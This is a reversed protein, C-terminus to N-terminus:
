GRKAAEAMAKAKKVDEPRTSMIYYLQTNTPFRDVFPVIGKGNYILGHGPDANTIYTMQVASINLMQALQLKDAQAQNLMVIFDCNSIITCAERSLLFDSVNQTLLCPLGQWKRARKIIQNIYSASSPSQILLHAEDVYFQTYIGKGKNTITQNQIANLCVKLGLEKMSDGMDKIDYVIFRNNTNVNTHHAFNDLTGICFREACLALSQAEYEPQNTLLEYLDRLTPAKSTDCTINPNQSMVQNMHEIYKTYVANVCRDLISLQNSSLVTGRGAMAEFLGAIYDVKMAIPNVNANDDDKGYNMDMDLPNLYVDGGTKIKIVTGGLHEALQTYEREPDIVYVHDETNLLVNVMERKASFSKGSGPTGFICSNMNKSNKRNWLILNRSVANLGYYMGNRQSLEQSSFPIFIAASETTLLRDTYIDCRGIPLSTAFGREQQWKLVGIECIYKAMVSKLMEYNQEIEEESNAFLTIAFTTLILSQNRQSLDNMLGEAENQARKLEPSILSPDYGAKIANKQADIVNSNINLLQRKILGQAKDARLKNYHISLLMEANIDTVEPLIAASIYTPLSKIYITQAYKSDGILTYNSKFSIVSPGIIDKTTLKQEEMQKFDFKKVHKGDIEINRLLADSEDEAYIQHLVELREEGTMPVTDQHNIRKVALNIDSDVKALKIYAEEINKAKITVTLFKDKLINNRGEKMKDLLMNNYEERYINLNDMKYELLVNKASMEATTKRNYITLELRVDSDFINLLESFKEFIQTQEENNATRFNMDEFRYSKSYVGPELEMIGNPSISMYPISEQVTKNIKLSPGKDKKDKKASNNINTKENNNNKKDSENKSKTKKNFM